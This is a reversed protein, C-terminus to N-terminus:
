VTSVADFPGQAISINLIRGEVQHQKVIVHRSHVAGFNGPPHTADPGIRSNYHQRRVDPQGFLRKLVHICRDGLANMRFCQQIRDPM